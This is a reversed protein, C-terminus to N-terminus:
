IQSWHGIFPDISTDIKICILRDLTIKLDVHYPIGNMKRKYYIKTYTKRLNKECETLLNGSLTGSCDIRFTKFIWFIYGTLIFNRFDWVYLYCVLRLNILSFPMSLILLRCVILPTKLSIKDNRKTYSKYSEGYLRFVSVISKFSRFFLEYDNM